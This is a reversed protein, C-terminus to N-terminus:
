LNPRICRITTATKSTSRCNALNGLYLNGEIRADRNSLVLPQGNITLCASWPNPERWRLSIRGPEAM